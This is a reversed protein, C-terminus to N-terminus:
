EGKKEEELCRWDADRCVFCLCRELWIYGLRRSRSRITKGGKVCVLMGVDSARCEEDRTDYLDYQPGTSM